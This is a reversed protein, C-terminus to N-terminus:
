NAQTTKLQNYTKVTTCRVNENISRLINTSNKILLATLNKHTKNKRVFNCKVHSNEEAFFGQGSLVDFVRQKIGKM